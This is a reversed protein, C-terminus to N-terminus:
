RLFFSSFNYLKRTNQQSLKDDGIYLKHMKSIHKSKMLKEFGPNTFNSFPLELQNLNPLSEAIAVISKNTLKEGSGRLIKLNEALKAQCIALVSEDSLKESPLRLSELNPLNEAQCLSIIGKDTLNEAERRIKASTGARLYRLQKLNQSQAVLELFSDDSAEGSFGLYDLRKIWAGELIKQKGKKSLSDSLIELVKLKKLTPNEALSILVSEPFSELHLVELKSFDANKLTTKVSKADPCCSIKLKRLGSTWKSKALSAVASNTLRDMRLYQLSSLDTQHFTKIECLLEKNRAFHSLTRLKSLDNQKFFYEMSSSPL